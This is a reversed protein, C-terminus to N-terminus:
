RGAPTLSGNLAGGGGLFAFCYYRRDGEKWRQEDAPYSAQLQVDPYAAAAGYDLATPASCLLNLQGVLAAEGPYAAAGDGPFLGSSVLQAPHPNACDVVTFSREWPSVWPDLCEGGALQNWEHEGVGAPGVPAEAVPAATPTPTPTPSASASPPVTPVPAAASEGSLRSGLLFALVLGLVAIAAISIVVIRRNRDPAASVRGAAASEGGASEEAGAAENTPGAAPDAAPASRELRRRAARSEPPEGSGAGSDDSV